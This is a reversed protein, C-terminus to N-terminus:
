DHASLWQNFTQFTERASNIIETEGRRSFPGELYSKFQDWMAQVNDGYGTFFSFGEESQLRSSIIRKIIAGGLTSGEMVYLAGLASYYSDIKPVFNCPSFNGFQPMLANVDDRLKSAKRRESYDTIRKLVFPHIAREVSSYYSYLLALLAVYELRHQIKSIRQMLKKELAAHDERTHAKIQAHLMQSIVKM